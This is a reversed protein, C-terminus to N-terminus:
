DGLLSNIEIAVFLAIVLESVIWSHSSMWERVKPLFTKARAGMVVVLISPIALLLLTTGIFGLVDTWPDGERAVKMGVTTSTVIDTPFIGLLLLGLIFAFKPTAAQLKGMWKPPEAEKRGRYVRVALFLLLALLTWDLIEGESGKSSSGPTGKVTKVILYALTVFFTISIAAGVVYAASNRAWGESTALFVASIIQPGAIMVFALPLVTLFGGV